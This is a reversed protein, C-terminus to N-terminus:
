GSVSTPEREAPPYKPTIGKVRRIGHSRELDWISAEVTPGWTSLYPWNKSM